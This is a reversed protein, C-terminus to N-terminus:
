FHKCNGINSVQEARILEETNYIGELFQHWFKQLVFYWQLLTTSSSPGWPREQVLFVPQKGLCEAMLEMRLIDCVRMLRGEVKCGSLHYSAPHISKPDRTTCPGLGLILHLLKTCKQEPGDCIIIVSSSLSINRFCFSLICFAWFM